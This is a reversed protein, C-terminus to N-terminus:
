SDSSHQDTYEYLYSTYSPTATSPNAISGGDSPLPVPLPRAPKRPRYTGRTGTHPPGGPKLRPRGPGRRVATPSSEVSSTSQLSAVSLVQSTSAPVDFSSINQMSNSSEFSGIASDSPISTVNITSSNTNFRGLASMRRSGRPRGRKSTGRGPFRPKVTSGYLNYVTYKSNISSDGEVDLFSGDSLDDSATLVPSNDSRPSNPGSDMNIITAQQLHQQDELSITNGGELSGSNDQQQHLQQPHKVRKTELGSMQVAKFALLHSRKREMERLNELQRKEETRQRYKQELEEDDLLLSVVEKPKLTDPKFNGGSIVLKQIESKERARQLIREEISGKCILRYVTVQKTQGLRHARDMAQQDVTPNWDSDYFIVTDAATLNIGLGGARTSLLFVFIDARAQFDAVMDRRESIKSSGDLRMYKHHRHWMYEELLDIMKTMQSYILVRHGEEKLRKLLSDLVSLKGSDTVLTEKDPILINSWGNTSKLTDLPNNIFVSFYKANSYNTEIDLAQSWYSNFSNFSYDDIHKKWDWAVRRSYCYLVASCVELKPLYCFLFSPLETRQCNFVQPSRERYSFEKSISSNTSPVSRLEDNVVDIIQDSEETAGKCRIKRHELTEPMSYYHHTSHVYVVRSKTNQWTFVLMKLNVNSDLYAPTMKFFPNFNLSQEVNKSWYDRYYLNYNRQETSYYNKLRQVICGQFISYLEQASMKLSICFNFISGVDTIANHIYEPTFLFYKKLILFKELRPNFDYVQYPIQYVCPSMFLPSKADRREFLEPHNCVKRFQMVLNMLNSTFNKDVVHSDGGGVTYHLLDEIQIKQKLAMYLLKQRTTLPCYVMVEIKDSLENEVDKKIRRLMFPKLIMHLRSLHKEDIGTKNEAHSEIDKSFWENFEEHSDFLTPMIFHLLAWLEAMSNQIPTGSLLLRNRCSFGLLTKWRMSNTSKIAQAEDLIMYQWKIRNFYKIDTIVIQYSTVVIHFSAEKTHMDKQDWFQRLIKRENPNGWYPVVNFDPVFKAIEQQWNHLTSAPSIILFPGWVSYKEAIHCLFAISQVTKGLGMEDALIGSIGQDYLNALWNMGRLQYGKLSGRFLLPQPHEGETSDTKKNEITSNAEVDFNRTRQRESFFAEEANRKAKAKMAESDYDDISLLRPNKEEDLQSLIRLQEEPSAKGLKKSMFHAYLETQTILFNLKRQQRKAEILEFDMKRQEEAEKELKRRIERDVRKSRKWYALNERSLRKMRWQQEKVVRASHLKEVM